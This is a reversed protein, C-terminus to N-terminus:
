FDLNYTSKTTINYTGFLHIEQVVLRGRLNKAEHSSGFRAVNTQLNHNCPNAVIRRYQSLSMRDYTMLQRQFAQFTIRDKWTLMTMSYVFSKYASYLGSLGYLLLYREFLSERIALLSNSIVKLKM